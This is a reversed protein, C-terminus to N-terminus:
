AQVKQEKGNEKFLTKLDVAGEQILALLVHEVSTFEDKMKEKVQEATNMVARLDQSLYVQQGANGQVSPKKDLLQNVGAELRTTNVGIKELVPGTVGDSERLLAAFLHVSGLESHNRSAALSQAAQFAEQLKNTFQNPNM